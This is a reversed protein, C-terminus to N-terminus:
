AWGRLEGRLWERQPTQLPRKPVSSISAPVISSVTERLLKKRTGNSIKRDTPQRFAIEFLRHDLFPERLETSSRMSVRDNFRLARPIKTHFTDRYQLNRVRDAFPGSDGNPVSPGALDRFAPVLCDPRVPSTSTGQVLGAPDDEIVRQYYDYGCWQEDMGNGDLLVKVGNNRAVEFLRAYAITPIGGFPEDEHYAVSEALDPVDKAELKCAFLPHHTRNLMERVWPLEDYNEDGTYFTFAKVASDPGQVEGVLGVLSSSDLGGSLNIGVPVDARFRLLVSEKMLAFLEERVVVEPREDVGDGVREALDYWKAIQVQGGKWRLKHGARLSHINKWFTRDSHDQLGKALYESWTSDDLHRSVGAAHIAKIESALILTGDPKQHL